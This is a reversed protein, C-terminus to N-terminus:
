VFQPQLFKHLQKEHEHLNKTQKTIQFIINKNVIIFLNLFILEMIIPLNM